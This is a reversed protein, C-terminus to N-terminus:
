SKAMKQGTQGSKGSAQGRVINVARGPMQATERGGNRACKEERRGHRCAQSVLQRKQRAGMRQWGQAASVSFLEGHQFDV